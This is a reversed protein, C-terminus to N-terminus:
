IKQLFQLPKSAGPINFYNPTDFVAQIRLNESLNLAIPHTTKVELFSLTGELYCRSHGETSMVM